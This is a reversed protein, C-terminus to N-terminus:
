TNLLGTAQRGSQSIVHRLFSNFPTGSDHQITYPLLKSVDNNLICNLIYYMVSFSYNNFHIDVFDLIDKRTVCAIKVVDDVSGSLSPGLFIKKKASERFTNLKLLFNGKISDAYLVEDGTLQINLSDVAIQSDGCLKEFIHGDLDSVVEIGSNNLKPYVTPFKVSIPVIDTLGKDLTLFEAFEARKLNKRSSRRLYYEVSDSFSGFENILLSREVYDSKDTQEEARKFSVCQIYDELNNKALVYDGTELNLTCLIPNAKVKLQPIGLRSLTGLLFQRNAVLGLSESFADVKLSKIFSLMFAFSKHNGSEEDFKKRTFKDSLRSLGQSATLDSANIGYYYKVRTDKEEIIKGMIRGNLTIVITNIVTKPFLNENLELSNSLTRRLFLWLEDEEPM